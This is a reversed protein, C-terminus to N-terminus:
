AAVRLPPLTLGNIFLPDYEQSGHRKRDTAESRSVAPSIDCSFTSITRVKKLSQFAPSM